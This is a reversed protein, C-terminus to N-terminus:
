ANWLVCEGAALTRPVDLIRQNASGRFRLSIDKQAEIFRGDVLVDILGLLEATVECCARCAPDSLEEFAFGTYIWITKQPYATRVNKLFPCLGRQNEPELPEGGLM